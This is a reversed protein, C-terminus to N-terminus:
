WRQSMDIVEKVKACYLVRVTARRTLVFTCVGIDARQHGYVKGEEKKMKRVVCWVMSKM